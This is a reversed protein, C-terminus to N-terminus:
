KNYQLTFENQNEDLLLYDGQKKQSNGFLLQIGLVALALVIIFILLTSAYGFSDDKMEIEKSNFKMLHLQAENIQEIKIQAFEDIPQYYDEKDMEEESINFSGNLSGRYGPEDM